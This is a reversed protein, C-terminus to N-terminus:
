QGRARARELHERSQELQTRAPSGMPVDELVQEILNIAIDLDSMAEQVEQAIEQQRQQEEMIRIKEALNAARTFAQATYSVKPTPATPPQIYIFTRDDGRKVELVDAVPAEPCDSISMGEPLITHADGCASNLQGQTLGTAEYLHAGRLEADKFDSNELNADGFTVNSLNADKFSAGTFNGHSLRAGTFNVNDFTADIADSAKLLSGQFSSGSFDGRTLDARRLDAYSINSNRLTAETLTADRLVSKHLNVNEGEVRMMYAKNFSAGELNSGYFKGGSLNSHSFDSESFNSGQLSVRQMTRHSLDCKSCSGSIRVSTSVPTQSFAPSAWLLGTAGLLFSLRKFLIENRM